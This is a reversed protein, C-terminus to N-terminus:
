RNPAPQLYQSSPPTALSTVDINDSRRVTVSGGAQQVEYKFGGRFHVASALTHPDGIADIVYPPHLQTGDVLVGGSPNDRVWTQAVVRVSDDIEMAEAGADRLEELGNLLQDTGVGGHPDKVLIRIGPGYAPRTGALIGLEDAQQRARALATRRKSTSGELARRTDELSAIQSQTRQSALSLSNILAILDGQRAGIYTDDRQNSRVQVAAAFGLAALLAGVVIQGRSPSKHLADLLRRRGTPQEPGKSALDSEHEPM